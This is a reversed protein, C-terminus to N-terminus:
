TATATSSTASTWRTAPRRAMRSRRPIPSGRGHTVFGRTTIRSAFPNKGTDDDYAILSPMIGMSEYWSGHRTEYTASVKLVDGPQVRVRWNKPTATMSLDWSVPPRNGFYKAESRFLLKSRGARSLRLDTYLGGPHM